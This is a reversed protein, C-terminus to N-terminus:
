KSGELINFLKSCASLLVLGGRSLSTWGRQRFFIVHKDEVVVRDSGLYRCESLGLIDVHCRDMEKALKIGKASDNLTQLNWAALKM